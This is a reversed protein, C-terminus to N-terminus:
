WRIEIADFGAVFAEYGGVKILYEVIKNKIELSYCKDKFLVSTKGKEAALKIMESIKGECTREVEHLIAVEIKENYGKVMEKAENSKFM